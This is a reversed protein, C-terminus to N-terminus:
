EEKRETQLQVQLTVGSDSYVVILKLLSYLSSFQEFSSENQQHINSFHFIRHKVSLATFYLSEQYFVKASISTDNLFETKRM